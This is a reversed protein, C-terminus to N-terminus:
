SAGELFDEVTDGLKNLLGDVNFSDPKYFFPAYQRLCFVSLDSGLGDTEPLAVPIALAFAALSLALIARMFLM